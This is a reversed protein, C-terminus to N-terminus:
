IENYLNIYCKNYILELSIRLTQIEYLSPCANHYFKFDTFYNGDDESVVFNEIIDSQKSFVIIEGKSM